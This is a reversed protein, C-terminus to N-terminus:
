RERTHEQNNEHDGGGPGDGLVLFAPSSDRGVIGARWGLAGPQRRDQGLILKPPLRRLVGILSVSVFQRGPNGHNKMSLGAVAIAIAHPVVAQVAAKLSSM